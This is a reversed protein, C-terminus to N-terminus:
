RKESQNTVLKLEIEHEQGAVVDLTFGSRGPDTYREPVLLNMAVEIQPETSGATDYAVVALRHSGPAVGQIDQGTTLVFSGDSQITGSAGRGGDLPTSIVNGSTLPKGDLTVTGRVKGNYDFGKQCGVIPLALVALVVVASFRVSFISRKRSTIVAIFKMNNGCPASADRIILM